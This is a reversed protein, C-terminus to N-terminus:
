AADESGGAFLAGVPDLTPVQSPRVVERISAAYKGGRKTLLDFDVPVVPLGNRDTLIRVRPRSLQSRDRPGKAVVAVEGTDLVVLTGIPFPGM